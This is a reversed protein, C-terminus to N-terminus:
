AQEKLRRETGASWEAKTQFAPDSRVSRETFALSEDDPLGLDLPDGFPQVVYWPLDMYLEIGNVM